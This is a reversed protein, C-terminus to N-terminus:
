LIAKLNGLGYRGIFAKPDWVVNAGYMAVM